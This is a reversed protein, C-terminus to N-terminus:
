QSYKPKTLSKYIKNKTSIHPPFFSYIESIDLTEHIHAPALIYSLFMVDTLDQTRHRGEQQLLVVWLGDWLRSSLDSM